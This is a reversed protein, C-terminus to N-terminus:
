RLRHRELVSRIKEPIPLPRQTRRDVFVHVFHGEAAAAEDEEKFIGIVYRVSSNGLHGIGVGATLRDPFAVSRHFRCGNEVAIGIVQDNWPDLGGEAILMAAIATDFYAYYVVNNVHGYLDNDAWRTQLPTFFSFAARVIPAPRQASSM